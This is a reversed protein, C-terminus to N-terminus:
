LGPRSSLGPQGGLPSAHAAGPPLLAGALLGGTTLGALRLFERRNLHKLDPTTKMRTPREKHTPTLHTHTGQGDAQLALTTYPPNALRFVGVFARELLM